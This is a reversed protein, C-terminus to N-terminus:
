LASWEVDRYVYGTNKVVLKVNHQVAFQVATQVDKPTTANIGIIPVSGQTCPVGLSTNLYCAGITGNKFMFTEFNPAEMAGPQDSRWNGDGWVQAFTSCNVSPADVPYCAAATPRPYILPSSLQTELSSFEVASPWCSDGYICTCSPSATALGSATLCLLTPAKM